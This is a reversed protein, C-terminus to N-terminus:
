KGKKPPLSKLALAAEETIKDHNKERRNVTERTLGLLAALGAQTLGRRQREKKYEAPTMIQDNDAPLKNTKPNARM